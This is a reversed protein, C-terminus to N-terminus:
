KLVARKSLPRHFLIEPRSRWGNRYVLDGLALIVASLALMQIAFRANEGAERLDAEDPHEANQVVSDAVFALMVLVITIVAFPARARLMTMIWVYVFLIMALITGFPTTTSASRFVFGAILLLMLITMVAPHEMFQQTEPNFKLAANKRFVIYFFVALVIPSTNATFQSLSKATTEVVSM